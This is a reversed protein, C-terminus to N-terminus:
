LGPINKRHEYLNNTFLKRSRFKLYIPIGRKAGRKMLGYQGYKHSMRFVGTVLAAGSGFILFLCLYMNVGTIYLIAFLILLAVLGAALYGIYQARLGKFEISKNIGKNIQYISSM